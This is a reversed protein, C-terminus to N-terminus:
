RSRTLAVGLGDCPGLDPWVGGPTGVPFPHLRGDGESGACRHRGEADVPAGPCFGWDAAGDYLDEDLCVGDAGVRRHQTAFWARVGAQAAAARAPFLPDVCTLGIAFRDDGDVDGAFRLPAAGATDTCPTAACDVPDPASGDAHALTVVCAAEAWAAPPTCAWTLRLTDGADLDGPPALAHFRGDGGSDTRAIVGGGDTVELGLRCHAVVADLCAPGEDIQGDCDDDLGDCTEPRCVAADTPSTDAPSADAPSADTLAADAPRADASAADPVAQDIAADLPAADRPAADRAADPIARDAGAADPPGAADVIADRSGRDTVQPGADAAARHDPSEAPACGTLGPLLLTALLCALGYVPPGSM